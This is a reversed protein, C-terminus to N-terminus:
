AQVMRELDAVEQREREAEERWYRQIATERLEERPPRRDLWARVPYLARSACRECNHPNTGLAECDLCFLDPIM